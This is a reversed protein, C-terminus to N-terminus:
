EKSMSEIMKYIVSREQPNLKLLQKIKKLTRTDMKSLDEITQNGIKPIGLLDNISVNLACAIIAVNDRGHDALYKCVMMRAEQAVLNGLMETIHNLSERGLSELYIEISATDIRSQSNIVETLRAVRKQDGARRLYQDLREAFTPQTSDLERQLSRLSHVFDAAVAFAGNVLLEDLM